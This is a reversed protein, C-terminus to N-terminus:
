SLNVTIYIKEVSDVPQIAVEVVVADSDTGATIMVDNPEFNQIAAMNQLTTFYDVLAAKLLSHGDPTNNVRGIYNGEFILTIDNTINDLTRIVRNKAFMKSKEPTVSTLSNIDYVVTVNQATDVKFIFKGAKIAAEMDTKSMRPDVDIAGMYKAATNSTVINAGATAGAVWATAEAATLKAGDALVIGQTVNIVGEDDAVHNALVAQCKVGEDNRMTKIWAAIATKNSEATAPTTDYPYCLVNFQITKLKALAATVSESTHTKPLAYIIVTKAKKLAETALKKDAATAKEPYPQNTATITYMQGDDGVSMEQLIVVTGRDGPTISLPENTRINIYTGPLVKNQSEWTGAM